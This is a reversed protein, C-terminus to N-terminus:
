NQNELIKKAISSALLSSGKTTFHIADGFYEDGPPVIAAGDVLPVHKEAALTRIADNMRRDMDLFGTETLMPYFRRWATLEESDKESLTPGFRNAHTVLVPTVGHQRLADIMESLDSRFANVSEDSVRDMPKGYAAAERDIDKRRLYDLLGPPALRKIADRTKDVFRLEFKSQAAATQAAPAKQIWPLWIYNAPTPYIVAFQPHLEQVYQPIRVAATRITQGVLGANVVQFQMSPSKANLDYEIQRPFEQGPDEYLGFTESAGICVVRTGGPRVEPGRFGLSNLRYDRFSAYPKGTRGLADTTFMSDYTYNSLFPARYRILDDVRACLELTLGFALIALVVRVIRM